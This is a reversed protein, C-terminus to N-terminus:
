KKTEFDEGYKKAAYIKALPWHVPCVQPKTVQTKFLTRKRFFFNWPTIRWATSVRHLQCSTLIWSSVGASEKGTGPLNVQVNAFLNTRAKNKYKYGLVAWHGWKNHVHTPSFGRSDHHLPPSNMRCVGWHFVKVRESGEDPLSRLLFGYGTWQRWGAFEETFFRLGKVAKM